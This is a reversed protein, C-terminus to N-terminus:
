STTREVEQKVKAWRTGYERPSLRVLSSKGDCNRVHWWPDQCSRYWDALNNQHFLIRKVEDTNARRLLEVVQWSVDDFRFLYLAGSSVSNGEDSDSSDETQVTSSPLLLMSRLESENVREVTNDEDDYEVRYTGNEKPLANGLFWRGKSHVHKAVRRRKCGVSAKSVDITSDEARARKMPSRPTVMMSFSSDMLSLSSSTLCSEPSYSSNSSSSLSSSSSSSSRINELMAFDVKEDLEQPLIIDGNLDLLEKPNTRLDVEAHGQPLDIEMTNDEKNEIEIQHCEDGVMWARLVTRGQHKFKVRHNRDPLKVLDFVSAPIPARTVKSALTGLWTDNASLRVCHMQPKRKGRNAMKKDRERNAVDSDLLSFLVCRTRTTNDGPSRTIADKNCFMDMAVRLNREFAEYRKSHLSSVIFIALNILEKIAFAGHRGRRIRTATLVIELAREVEVDEVKEPLIVIKKMNKKRKRPSTSSSTLEPIVIKAEEEILRLVEKMDPLNKRTIERIEKFSTSMKMIHASLRPSREGHQQETNYYNNNNIHNMSMALIRPTRRRRNSNMVNRLDLGRTNTSTRMTKSLKSRADCAPCRIGKRHCHKLRPKTPLPPTPTSSPTPTSDEDVPQPTASGEVSVASLEKKEVLVVPSSKEVVVVGDDDGGGVVVRKFEEMFKRKREKEEEEELRRIELMAKMKKEQQEKIERKLREEEEEKIRKRKMERLEELENQRKTELEEMEIRPVVIPTEVVRATKTLDLAMMYSMDGNDWRKSYVWHRYPVEPMVARDGIRVVAGVRVFGMREYFPVALKTAQLVVCRQTANTVIDRVARRCLEEGCGLAGLLSLETLRPWSVGELKGCYPSTTKNKKRKRQRRSPGDEHKMTVRAEMRGRIENALRFTLSGDDCNHLKRDCARIGCQPSTSDWRFSWQWTSFKSYMIFGQLMGKGKKGGKSDNTRITFGRLNEDWKIREKIYAESLPKDFMTAAPNKRLEKRRAAESCLCVIEPVLKKFQERSTIRKVVSNSNKTWYPVDMFKYSLEHNPIQHKKPM